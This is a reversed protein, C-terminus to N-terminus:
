ETQKFRAARLVENIGAIGQGEISKVLEQEYLKLSEMANLVEFTHEGFSDEAYSRFTTPVFAVLYDVTKDDRLEVLKTSTVEYPKMPNEAVAVIKTRPPLDTAAVLKSSLQTLLEPSVGEVLLRHGPSRAQITTVIAKSFRDAIKEELENWTLEKLAM